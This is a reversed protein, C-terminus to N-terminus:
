SYGHINQPVRTIPLNSFQLFTEKSNPLDTIDYPIGNGFDLFMSQENIMLTSLETSKGERLIEKSNAKKASEKKGKYRKYCQLVLCALLLLSLGTILSALLCLVVKEKNENVVKGMLMLDYLLGILDFTNKSPAGFHIPNPGMNQEFDFNRYGTVKQAHNPVVNALVDEEEAFPFM